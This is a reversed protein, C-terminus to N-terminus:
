SFLVPINRVFGEAAVAACCVDNEHAFNPFAWLSHTEGDDDLTFQIKFKFCKSHDDLAAIFPKLFAKEEEESEFFSRKTIKANESSDAFRDRTKHIRRQRVHLKIV